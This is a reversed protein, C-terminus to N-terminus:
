GVEEAQKQAPKNWGSLSDRLCTSLTKLSEQNPQWEMAVIPLITAPLAAPLPLHPTRIHLTWPQHRCIVVVNASHHFQLSSINPSWNLILLPPEFLSLAACAKREFPSRYQRNCRTLPTFSTLVQTPRARRCCCPAKHSHPNGTACFDLDNSRV